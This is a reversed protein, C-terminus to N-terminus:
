LLERVFSPDPAVFREGLKLDFTPDQLGNRVPIVWWANDTGYLDHALLDPRRVHRENTLTFIRDLVHPPVPRHVYYAMFRGLINTFFYPSEPSYEPIFVM